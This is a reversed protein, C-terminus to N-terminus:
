SLPFRLTIDFFVGAALAAGSPNGVYVDGNLDDVICQLSFFTTSARISGNVARAPRFGAPLTVFVEAANNALSAGTKVFRGTIEITNLITSRRYRVTKNGGGGGTAYGTAFAPAGGGAGIVIYPEWVDKMTPASGAGNGALIQNLTGSKLATFTDNVKDYVNQFPEGPSYIINDFAAM